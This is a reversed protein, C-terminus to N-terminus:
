TLFPVPMDNLLWEYEEKTDVDYFAKEDRFSVTIGAGSPLSKLLQRAGKDGRIQKLSSFLRRSFIVPPRIKGGISSATFDPQSRIHQHILEDIWASPFLPQDGLLVMVAEAKRDEAAQVGSRLSYSQGREAFRSRITEWRKQEELREPLLWELPDLTKTVVLTQQLSSRTAARLSMSGVTSTGLPLALKHQGMRRSSGAALLIGTVHEEKM